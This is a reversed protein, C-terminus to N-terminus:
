AWPPFANTSSLLVISCASQAGRRHVATSGAGRRHVATQDPVVATCQQQDPVVATSSPHGQVLRRHVHTSRYRMCGGALRGSCHDPLPRAPSPASTLFLSRLHPGPGCGHGVAVRQFSRSAHGLCLLVTSSSVWLSRTSVGQQRGGLSMPLALSPLLETGGSTFSVVVFSVTRTRCTSSRSSPWQRHGTAVWQTVFCLHVVHCSATVAVFGAKFGGGGPPSHDSPGSLMSFVLCRLRWLFIKCPASASKCQSM